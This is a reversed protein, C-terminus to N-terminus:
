LRLHVQFCSSRVLYPDKWGPRQELASNCSVIADKLNDLGRYCKALMLHLEAVYPRGRESVADSLCDNLVDACETYHQNTYLQRAEQVKLSVTEDNENISSESM